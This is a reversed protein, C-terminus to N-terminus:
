TLTLLCHHLPIYAQTEPERTGGLAGRRESGLNAGHGQLLFGVPQRQGPLRVLTVSPKIRREFHGRVGRIAIELSRGPVTDRPEDLHPSGCTEHFEASRALCDVDELSLERRKRGM